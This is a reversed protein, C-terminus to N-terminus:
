IQKKFAILCYCHGPVLVNLVLIRGEFCLYSILLVIFLCISLFYVARELM